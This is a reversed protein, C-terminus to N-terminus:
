LEPAGFGGEERLQRKMREQDSGYVTRLVPRRSLAVEMKAVAERMSARRREPTEAVQADLWLMRSVEALLDGAEANLETGKQAYRHGEGLANRVAELDGQKLAHEAKLNAQRLRISYVGYWTGKLRELEDFDMDARQFFVMPDEGIMMSWWAKMRNARGRMDYIDPNDSSIQGVEEILSFVEELVPNPNENNLLLHMAKNLLVGAKNTFAYQNMNLDIARQFYNASKDFSATPDIGAYWEYAGLTWFVLGLNNQALELDPDSLSIAELYERARAVSEGPDRGRSADHEAKTWHLVGASNLYYTDNPRLDLLFNWVRAAEEFFIGPDEGMSMAYECRLNLLMARSFLLRERNETKIEEMSITDLLAMGQEIVSEPSIGRFYFLFEGKESFWRARESVVLPHDPIVLMATNFIEEMQAEIQTNEEGERVNLSYLWFLRELEAIYGQMHSPAIKLAQQYSGAAHNLQKRMEDYQGRSEADMALQVYIQGELLKAEFFWATSEPMSALLALADDNRAEYWAIRAELFKSIGLWSGKSKKLAALAPDRYVDKIEERRLARLKPNIIANANGLAKEYLTGLVLGLSEYVVADDYGLEIAKELHEKAKPYAELALYARGLAFHGPGQAMEGLEAMDAELQQIRERVREQYPEINHPPMMHAVRLYWDVSEVESSFRRMLNAKREQRFQDVVVYSGLVVLSIVGLMVLGAFVPNKQIKKWFIYSLVPQRVSVPEHRLFRALDLAIAATNPYRRQPDKEMAKAVISQLDLPARPNADRLKPTDERVVNMLVQVNNNGTFPPKGSFLFFMTAGLGYVDTRREFQEPEARVQEPSMYAPSGAVKRESINADTETERALGFDLVFPHLKHGEKGRDEWKVIINSPKLDRHVLGKQHAAHIAQAVRRMVEVKETTSLRHIAVDLTEGELCQMAIYNTKGVQGVDFVKCINPHEVSAQAQAEQLISDTNKSDDAYLLKLAVHRKLISDYAKYVVGIAGRGLWTELQYRGLKRGKLAQPQFQLLSPLDVLIQDTGFDHGSSSEDKM